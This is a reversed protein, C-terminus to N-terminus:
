RWYVTNEDDDPTIEATCSIGEKFYYEKLEDVFEYVGRLTHNRLHYCETTDCGNQTLTLSVNYMKRCTKATEKLPSRM